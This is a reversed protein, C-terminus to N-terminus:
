AVTLRNCFDTVTEDRIGIGEGDYTIRGDQDHDAEKIMDEVEKANLQDGINKM